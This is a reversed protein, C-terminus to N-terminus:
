KIQERGVVKVWIGCHCGVANGSAQVEVRFISAGTSSSRGFLCGATMSEKGEVRERRQGQCKLPLWTAACCRSGSQGKPQYWGEGWSCSM